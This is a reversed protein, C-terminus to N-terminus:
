RRELRRPAHLGEAMPPHLPGDGLDLAQAGFPWVSSYRPASYTTSKRGLTFIPRRRVGDDVAHDLGDLDPGCRCSRRRCSKRTGSSCTTRMRVPSVPLAARHDGGKPSGMFFEHRGTSGAQCPRNAGDPGRTASSAGARSHDSAAAEAALGGRSGSHLHGPAPAWRGPRCRRSSPTWGARRKIVTGPRARNVAAQHAALVHQRHQHLDHDGEASRPATPEDAHSCGANVSPLASM